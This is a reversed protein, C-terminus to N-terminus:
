QKTAGMELINRVINKQLEFLRMKKMRSSRKKKLTIIITKNKNEELPGM